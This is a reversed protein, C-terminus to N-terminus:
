QVLPKPVSAAQKSIPTPLGKTPSWAPEKGKGTPLKIKLSKRASAPESKKKNKGTLKSSVSHDQAFEPDPVQTFSEHIFTRQKTPTVPTGFRMDNADRFRAHEGLAPATQPVAFSISSELALKQQIAVDREFEAKTMRNNLNHVLQTVTTSFRMMEGLIPQLSGTTTLRQLSRTYPDSKGYENGATNVGQLRVQYDDPYQGNSQPAPMKQAQYGNGQPAPMMQGQYGNPYQANSQSPVV